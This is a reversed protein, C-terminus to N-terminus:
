PRIGEGEGVRESLLTDEFTANANLIDFRRALEALDRAACVADGRKMKVNFWYDRSQTAYHNLQLHKNETRIRFPSARMVHHVRISDARDAIYTRFISKTHRDLKPDRQTFGTRLSEPQAVHGNSGFQSWNTYIVDTGSHGRLYDDIPGGDKCFWFEDLDAIMLWECLEAIKFEQFASWYHAQQRHQEPYEVLNVVAGGRMKEIWLWAKAVTDDTSGNDILFIRDVGISLYHSIWEDITHSENKMIALVGVVHPVTRRKRRRLETALWGRVQKRRMNFRRLAQYFQAFM